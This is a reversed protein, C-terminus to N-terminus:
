QEKLMDTNNTNFGYGDREDMDVPCPWLDPLISFLYHIWSMQLLIQQKNAATKNNDTFQLNCM